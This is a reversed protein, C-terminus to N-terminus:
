TGTSSESGGMVVKTEKQKNQVVLSIKLFSGLNQLDETPLSEWPTHNEASERALVCEIKQLKGLISRIGGGPLQVNRGNEV